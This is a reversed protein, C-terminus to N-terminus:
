LERVRKKTLKGYYGCIDERSAKAYRVMHDAIRFGFVRKGSEILYKKIYEHIIMGYFTDKYDPNVILGSEVAIDDYQAFVAAHAAINGDARIIFSIGAKDRIRAALQRTLTKTDYNMGFEEDTCMLAAIEPADKEDARAVLDFGPLERYNKENVIMGYASGYTDRCDQELRQIMSKKGCVTTVEYQEMLKRTDGANWEEYASFIQFSDYYKMVVTNVGKENEDFWFMVEPNDVGCVQLDIYLYICEEVHMRLYATLEPVREKTLKEMTHIM